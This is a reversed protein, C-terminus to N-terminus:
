KAGYWTHDFFELDSTALHGHVLKPNLGLKQAWEQAIEKLSTELPQPKAYISATRGTSIAALLSCIMRTSRGTQRDGWNLSIGEAAALQERENVRKRAFGEFPTLSLAKRIDEASLM